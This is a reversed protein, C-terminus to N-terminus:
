TRYDVTKVNCMRLYFLSSFDLAIGEITQKSKLNPFRCDKPPELAVCTTEPYKFPFLGYKDLSFNGPNKRLKPFFNCEIIPTM